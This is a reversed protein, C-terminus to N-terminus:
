LKCHVVITKVDRGIGVKTRAKCWYAGKDEATVNNIVLVSEMATDREPGVQVKLLILYKASNVLSVGHNEDRYWSLQPPPKGFSFCTLSINNSEKAILVESTIPLITTNHPRATSSSFFKTVM